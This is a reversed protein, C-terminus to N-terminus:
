EPPSASATTWFATIPPRVFSMVFRSRISSFVKKADITVAALYWHRSSRRLSPARRPDDVEVAAAVAVRHMKETPRLPL